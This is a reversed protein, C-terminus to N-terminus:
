PKEKRIVEILGIVAVVVAGIQPLLEPDVNWGLIGALLALGKWTSPEKLRAGIHKSGLIVLLEM